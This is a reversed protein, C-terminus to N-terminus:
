QTELTQIRTEHNDTRKLVRELTDMMRSEAETMKLIAANLLQIGKHDERVTAELSRISERDQRAEAEIQFTIAELGRISEAQRAAAEAQRAISEAQRAAAEAQRTAAEAQRAAAEALNRSFELQAKVAGQLEHVDITLLEVSQAIADIREDINRYEAM